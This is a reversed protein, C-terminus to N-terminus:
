SSQIRAELRPFFIPLFPSLLRSEMLPLCGLGMKRLLWRARMERIIGALQRAYVDATRATRFKCGLVAKAAIEGSAHAYYIGEGLLPEALGAADGLLLINQFGPKKEYDGYPLVHGQIQVGKNRFLNQGAWLNELIQKLAKGDLIRASCIGLRQRSRGPFSWAYGDPVVGVILEPYDPFQGKDRPVYAELALAAGKSWPPNVVKERALAKRARSSGGDAGLIYRARYVRGSGGIVRSGSVDVQVVRELGIGAGSEIATDRWLLDYSERDVLVFSDGSRGAYLCRKSNRISYNTTRRRIIEKQEMKLELGPCIRNGIDLTKRTLMGACLKFRPFPKKDLIMVDMGERALLTGATAGAPGCGIILVDYVRSM